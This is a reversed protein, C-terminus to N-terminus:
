IIKNVSLYLNKCYLFNYFDKKFNTEVPLMKVPSGDRKCELIMRKGSDIKNEDCLNKYSATQMAEVYHRKNGTKIDAVLYKKWGKIKYLGDIRGCYLHKDSYLRKEIFKVDEVFEIVWKTFSDIMPFLVKPVKEKVVFFGKEKIIEPVFGHLLQGIYSTEALIRDMEQNGKFGRLQNLGPHNIVSLLTTASWYRVGNKIHYDKHEPIIM